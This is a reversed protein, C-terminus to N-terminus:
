GFHSSPNMNIVIVVPLVQQLVNKFKREQVAQPVLSTDKQRINTLGLSFLPAPIWSKQYNWQSSQSGTARSPLWVLFTSKTQAGSPNTVMAVHEEPSAPFVAVPFPIPSSHVVNQSQISLNKFQLLLFHVPCLLPISYVSVELQCPM